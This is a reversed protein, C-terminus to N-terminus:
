HFNAPWQAHHFRELVYTRILQEDDFFAAAYNPALFECALCLGLV